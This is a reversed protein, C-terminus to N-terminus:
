SSQQEDDTSVCTINSHRSKPLRLKAFSDGTYSTRQDTTSYYLCYSHNKTMVTM